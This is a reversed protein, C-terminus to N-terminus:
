GEGERERVNSELGNYRKERMEREENEKERERRMDCIDMMM